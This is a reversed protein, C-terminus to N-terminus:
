EEHYLIRGCQECSVVEQEGKVRVATQTTIKMHCGMCVEHELPVVAADGKSAFLREYRERLDEDIDGALKGRESELANLQEDIAKVKNDLDAFQQNIRVKADAFAREAASVEAKAQEAQEMLDLERDEIAQIEDEFRKIENGLAQFEENKRTQFQQTRFKAISDRRSQADIELKKKDVELQKFRQKAAELTASEAAMKEELGNRESPAMEKEHKLMRIKRDRDQLILLQEIVKLV